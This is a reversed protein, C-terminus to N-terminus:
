PQQDLSAITILLGHERPAAAAEMATFSAGPMIVSSSRQRIGENEHQSLLQSFM